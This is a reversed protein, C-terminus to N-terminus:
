VEGEALMALCGATADLMDDYNDKTLTTYNALEHWIRPPLTDALQLWTNTLPPQLTRIRLLKARTHKVPVLVPEWRRREQQSRAAFKELLPAILTSQFGNTEIGLKEVQWRWCLDVIGDLQADIDDTQECYADIVYQYGHRDQMVVPCAAYDRRSADPTGQQADGPTPDYFAVLARMDIWRVWRGDARQVGEPTVHCVALSDVDFLYSQDQTPNNQMEQWFASEGDIIRALMLDYYSTHEPWLVAAGALMADEHAEYYVRADVLRAPNELDLVLDRWTRWHQHAEATQAFALVAQYVRARYGPNQLMTALFSEPHLLTGILDFNTESNGLKAVDKTFWDMFRQRRLPTLVTDTDEADDLVAKTLRQGSALIGRIATKPTFARYRCGTAIAFDLMRWQRTQQPGYVRILEANTAFEDRIEKTKNLALEHNASCIAVFREHGYLGDHILQIKGRHTTKAFGRPAATAERWGRAYGDDPLRRAAHDAFFAEHMANFPKTCLQPFFHSVFLRM